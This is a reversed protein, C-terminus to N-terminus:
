WRSLKEEEEALTGSPETHRVVYNTVVSTDGVKQQSKLLKLADEISIEEAQTTGHLCLCCLFAFSLGLRLRYLM